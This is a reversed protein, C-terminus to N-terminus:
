DLIKKIFIQNNNICIIKLENKKKKLFKNIATAPVDEDLGTYLNGYFYDDCIMIGNLNLFNWANNIDKHVQHSEHTGDVYIIDFYDSNKEFFNDSGEKFFSFRGEFEKMNFKFNDFNQKNIGKYNKDKEWVDVCYVKKPSFNKLIYSVSNGEYSGIEMYSFNKFNEKIIYNWYYANISFYDTTNKKSKLYLQHLKRYKKKQSQVFPHKLRDLCYYYFVNLGAKRKIQYNIKYYFNLSLM